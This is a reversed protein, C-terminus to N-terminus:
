QKAAGIQLARLLMSVLQPLASRFPAWCGARTCAVPARLGGADITMGDPVAKHGSPAHVVARGLLKGEPGRHPIGQLSTLLSSCVLNFLRMPAGAHM